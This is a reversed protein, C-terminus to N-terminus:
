QTFYTWRRTCFLEIFPTCVYCVLVRKKSCRTSLSELHITWGLWAPCQHLLYSSNQDNRLLTEIFVFQIRRANENALAKALVLVTHQSARQVHRVFCISFGFNLTSLIVSFFSLLRLPYRFFLIPRLTRFFPCCFGHLKNQLM